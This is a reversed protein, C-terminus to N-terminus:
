AKYKNLVESKTSRTERSSRGIDSVKLEEIQSYYNLFFKKTQDIEKSSDYKEVHIIIM